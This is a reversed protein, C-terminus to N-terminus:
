DMAIIPAADNDDGGGRKKRVGPTGGRLHATADDGRPCPTPEKEGTEPNTRFCKWHPQRCFSCNHTWIYDALAFNETGPVEACFVEDVDGEDEVSVVRWRLREYTQNKQEFRARHEDILFFEPSLSLASLELHYLMTPATGKGLRMSGHIGFTTIGLRLCIMQYFELSGRDASSIQIAGAKSVSGDAAFYGALWGYLYSTGETLSPKDKFSTPLNTVRIAPVNYGDMVGYDVARSGNFYKLLQRDKEGFLTVYSGDVGGNRQQQRSGDGYVIGAAIGFTSPTTQRVRNQRTLSALAMGPKLDKTQIERTKASGGQSPAAFWVHNPTVRVTKVVKNRTLTLTLLKQTGYSRIPAEVWKGDTRGGTKKSYRTFDESLVLQTTGATEAFSKPGDPTLFEVEGGFCMVDAVDVEQGVNVKM